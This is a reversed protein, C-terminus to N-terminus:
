LTSGSRSLTSKPTTAIFPYEPNESTGAGSGSQKTEYEPYENSTDLGVTFICDTYEVAGASLAM